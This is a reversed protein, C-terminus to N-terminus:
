ESGYGMDDVQGERTLQELIRQREVDIADKYAMVDEVRIRRHKGVRRHPIANQDLLKIVFPRSVNLFKAAQETTLESNEPILVVGRGGAIAKLADMLLDVASVPLDISQADGNDRLSLRLPVKRGSHTSLVQYASRALSAEQPSPPHQRRALTNM